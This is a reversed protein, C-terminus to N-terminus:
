AIGIPQLSWAQVMDGITEHLLVVIDLCFKVKLSSLGLLLM